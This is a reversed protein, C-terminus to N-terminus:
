SFRAKKTQICRLIFKLVNGFTGYLSLETSFSQFLRVHLLSILRFHKSARWKIVGPVYMCVLTHLPNLQFSGTWDLDM